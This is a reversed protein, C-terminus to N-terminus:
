LQRDSGNEISLGAAIQLDIFRYICVANGRQMIGIKSHKHNAVVSPFQSAEVALGQQGGPSVMLPMAQRKGGSQEERGKGALVDTDRILRRTSVFRTPDCPATGKEPERCPLLTDVPSSLPESLGCATGSLVRPQM